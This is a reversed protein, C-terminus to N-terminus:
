GDSVSQWSNGGDVTKWVGGGTAGFYYVLPQSPVGAVAASRGGRYPGVERWGLDKFISSNPTSEKVNQKSSDPFAGAAPYMLIIVLIASILRSSQNSRMTSRRISAANKALEIPSLSILM